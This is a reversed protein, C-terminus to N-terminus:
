DDRLNSICVLSDDPGFVQDFVFLKPGTMTSRQRQSSSTLQPGPEDLIVHNNTKDVTLCTDVDSEVGTVRAILKVQDVRMM